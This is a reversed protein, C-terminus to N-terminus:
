FTEKFSDCLVLCAFLKVTIQQTIDVEIDTSIIILFTKKKVIASYMSFIACVEETYVLKNLRILKSLIFHDNRLLKSMESFKGIIKKQETVNAQIDPSITVLLDKYSHSSEDYRLGFV